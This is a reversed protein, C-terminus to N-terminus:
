CGSKIPYELNMTSCGLRGANLSIDPLIIIKPEDKIM